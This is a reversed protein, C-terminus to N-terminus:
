TKIINPLPGKYNEISDVIILDNNERLTKFPMIITENFNLEEKLITM